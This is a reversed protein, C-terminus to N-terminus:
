TIPLLGQRPNADPIDIGASQVFARVANAIFLSQTPIGKAKMAARMAQLESANVRSVVVIHAPLGRKPLPGNRKNAKTRLPVKTSQKM